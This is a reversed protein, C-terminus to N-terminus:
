SRGVWGDRCVITTTDGILARCDEHGDYEAWTVWAPGCQGNGMTLCNWPLTDEDYSRLVQGDPRECVGSGDEFRTLTSDQPCGDDGVGTVATGLAAGAWPLGVFLSTVVVTRALLRRTM